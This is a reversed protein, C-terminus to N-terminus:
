LRWRPATCGEARAWAVATDCWSTSFSRGLKEPWQAGKHRMWKASELLDRSGADNLLETLKAADAQVGQDWIYQLMVVNNHKAVVAKYLMSEADWPCGSEHLFRLVEIHGFEVANHCASDIWPCGVSHLWKCLHVNGYWAAQAVFDGDFQLGQQQLWEFISVGGSRPTHRVGIGSLFAGHLHLWKLQELDGAEVAASATLDHWDCGEDMLFQLVSINHPRRAASITTYEDLAYGKQKLWQLMEVSGGEAAEEDIDDPLACRQVDCLWALKPLSGSLAANRVVLPTRALGRQHATQLTAIDAYRGICRQVRALLVQQSFVQGRLVEQSWPGGFPELCVQLKLDHAWLLRASSAFAAAYSTCTSAHVHPHSCRPGKSEVLKEYCMRWGKNVTKVYLGQGLLNSLVLQLIGAHNLPNSSDIVARKQARTAVM